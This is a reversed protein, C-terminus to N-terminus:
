GFKFPTCLLVEILFINYAYAALAILSGIGLGTIVVTMLSFFGNSVFLDRFGDNNFDALLPGWSWDTAAIGSYRGVESFSQDGNNLQLTNRIYAPIFGNQLRRRVDDYSGAGIVIKHKQNNEPLMDVTIIDQNGDNNVDGFDSGMAFFSTHKM